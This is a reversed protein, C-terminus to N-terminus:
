ERGAVWPVFAEDDGKFGRWGRRAYMGQYGCLALLSLEVYQIALQGALWWQTGSVPKAPAPHKEGAHVLANRLNAIVGPGDFAEGEQLNQLESLHSPIDCPIQFHELLSRMKGAASLRRFDNRGHLHRAEVVEVWALLELAVQGLVLRTADLPGSSNAEVYWRVARILPSQWLTDSYHEAFGCFLADLEVPNRQPLWTPVEKAESVRWGALQEWTKKDGTFGQPFVPGSWAGRLFGFFLHLLNLANEALAQDFRGELAKLEGVHSIVFGSERVAAKRLGDMEPIADTICLFHPSAARLRGRQYGRSGQTEYRVAHGFYQPFNVLCFRLRDFAPGVALTAKNLFVGRIQAPVPGWTVNTTLVSSSLGLDDISLTVGESGVDIPSGSYSGDFEMATSPLWRFYLRGEVTGLAKDATALKFRGHAVAVPENLTKMLIYPELRDPVDNLSANM